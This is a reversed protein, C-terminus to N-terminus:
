FRAATKSGTPISVKACNFLFDHYGIQTDFLFQMTMSILEEASTGDLQAFGLRNTM